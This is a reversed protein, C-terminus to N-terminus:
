AAQRRANVLWQELQGFRDYGWFPEGEVLVYPVGFVGRQLALENAQKFQEKIAPEGLGATFAVRDVGLAAAIGQLVAIEAIDVGDGYYAQFCTRAFSQALAEGHNARLWLMARGPALLQQPFAKSLRLPIGEALATRHMDRLVYDWKMPVMPSPLVGTSQTLATLMVPHWRVMCGHHAALQDIRRAAFYSYGSAFDFYFDLVM